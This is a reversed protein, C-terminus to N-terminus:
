MALYARLKEEVADYAFNVVQDKLWAILEADKEYDFKALENMARQMGEVDFDESAALLQALQERDPASKKPLAGQALEV